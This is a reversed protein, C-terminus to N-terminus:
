RAGIPATVDRPVSTPDAGTLAGSGTEASSFGVFARAEHTIGKRHKKREPADPSTKSTMQVRMSVSTKPALVGAIEVTSEAKM